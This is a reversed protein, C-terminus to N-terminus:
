APTPEDPADVPTHGRMLLLAMVGLAGIWLPWGLAVKLVSLVAINGALYMPFMAAFRIAYLLVLVWTLRASVRVVGRHRRWAFPDERYNPDALGVMFGVLPWRVLISILSGVFYAGSTLIGPLFADEARGSRLAFFAAIATVFVSALVYQQTSRQMARAAALVGLVIAAAVLSNRADKTVTWGIVFVLMPLSGELSGRWGGVATILRRRVVQEVTTLDDEDVDASM